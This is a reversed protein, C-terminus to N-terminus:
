IREWTTLSVQTLVCTVPLRAAQEEVNEVVNELSGIAM